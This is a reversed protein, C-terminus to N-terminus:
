FVETGIRALKEVANKCWRVTEYTVDEFSHPFPYGGMEDGILDMAEQWSSELALAAEAFDNLAIILAEIKSEYDDNSGKSAKKEDNM